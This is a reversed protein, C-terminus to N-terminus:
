LKVGELERIKKDKEKLQEELKQIKDKYSKIYTQLTLSHEKFEVKRKDELLKELAKIKREAELVKQKWAKEIKEIIKNQDKEQEKISNAFAELKAIAEQLIKKENLLEINKKACEKLQKELELIRQDKKICESKWDILVSM